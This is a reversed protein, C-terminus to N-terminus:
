CRRTRKSCRPWQRSRNHFGMAVAQYFGGHGAEALWDTGFTIKTQAAAPGAALLVCGVLPRAIVM